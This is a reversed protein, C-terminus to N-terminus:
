ADVLHQRLLVMKEESMFECVARCHESALGLQELEDQLQAQTVQYLCSNIMIYNVAAFCARLDDIDVTSQPNNGDSGETLNSDKLAIVQELLQVEDLENGAAKITRQVSDCIHRFQNLEM